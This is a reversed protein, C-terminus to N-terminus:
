IPPVRQHRRGEANKSEESQPHERMYSELVSLVELHPTEARQGRALTMPTWDWFGDAGDDLYVCAYPDAGHALLLSVLEAHGGGCALHLPTCGLAGREYGGIFGRRTRGSVTRWWTDRASTPPCGRALTEKQMWDGPGNIAATLCELYALDPWAEADVTAGALILTRAAGTSGNTSSLHLPTLGDREANPSAGERLLREM